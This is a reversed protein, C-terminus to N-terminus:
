DYLVHECELWMIRLLTGVHSAASEEGLRVVVLSETAFKTGVLWSEVRIEYCSAFLVFMTVSLTM